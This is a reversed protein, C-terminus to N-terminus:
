RSHRSHIGAPQDCPSLSASPPTHQTPVAPRVRIRVRACSVCVYVCVKPKNDELVFFHVDELPLRDGEKIHGQRQTGEEKGMLAQKSAQVRM